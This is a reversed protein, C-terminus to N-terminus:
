YRREVPCLADLVNQVLFNAGTKTQSPRKFIRLMFILSCFSNSKGRMAEFHSSIYGSYYDWCWRRVLIMRTWYKHADKVISSCVKKIFNMHAIIEQSDVYMGSQRLSLNISTSWSRVVPGTISNHSRHILFRLISGIVIQVYTWKQTCNEMESNPLAFRGFGLSNCRLQNGLEQSESERSLNKDM